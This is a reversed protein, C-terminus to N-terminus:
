PAPDPAQDKDSEEVFELVDYRQVARDPFFSNIAAQEDTFVESLTDLKALVLLSVHLPSLNLLKLAGGSSAASADCFVVASAGDGDIETVAAFNLIVNVAAGGALAGIAARLGAESAGEMLHGHLDLIQIGEKERQHFRFSM